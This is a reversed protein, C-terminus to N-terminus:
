SAHSPRCGYGIELRGSDDETLTECTFPCLNIKQPLSPDDFYWYGATSPCTAFTGDPTQRWYYSSGSSPAYYVYVQTPDILEGSPNLPIEFDCTISPGRTALFHDALVLAATPADLARLDVLHSGTQDLLFLLNRQPWQWTYETTVCGADVDPEGTSSSPTGGVGLTGNSGATGGSGLAMGTSTGPSGGATGGTEPWAVMGPCGVALMSAVLSSFRQRPRM